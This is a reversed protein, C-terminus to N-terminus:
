AFPEGIMKLWRAAPPPPVRVQLLFEGRQLVNVGPATCFDEMPRRRAYFGQVPDYLAAEVFDRFTAM